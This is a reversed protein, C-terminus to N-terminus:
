VWSYATHVYLSYISTGDRADMIGDSTFEKAKNLIQQIDYPLSPFKFGRNIYKMIVDQPKSKKSAFYYINPSAGTVMAHLCRSSVVFQPSGDEKAYGKVASYVGCVMGVHYVLIHNINNRYLEVSRFSHIKTPDTTIIKWNGNKVLEVHPHFKKIVSFHKKVEIELEEETDVNIAIDLDSGPKIDVITELYGQNDSDKSLAICRCRVGNISIGDEGDTNATNYYKDCRHIVTYQEGKPTIVTLLKIRNACRHNRRVGYREYHGDVGDKPCKLIKRYTSMDRPVTKVPSYDLDLARKYKIYPRTYRDSTRTSFQVCKNGNHEFTIPASNRYIDVEAGSFIHDQQRFLSAAIASGTIFSKSLDLYDLYGGVFINLRDFAKKENTIGYRNKFSSLEKLNFMFLSDKVILPRTDIFERESSRNFEDSLLIKVTEESLKICKRDESYYTDSLKSYILKVINVFDEDHILRILRPSHLASNVLKVCRKIIRMDDYRSFIELIEIFSQHEDIDFEPLIPNSYRVNKCFRKISESLDDKIEELKKMEADKREEEDKNIMEADYDLKANPQYGVIVQTDYDMISNEIFREIDSIIECIEDDLALMSDFAKILNLKDQMFMKRSLAVNILHMMQNEDIPPSLVLVEEYDKFIKKDESDLHMIVDDKNFKKIFRALIGFKILILPASIFKSRLGTSKCEVIIYKGYKESFEQYHSSNYVEDSLKVSYNIEEM